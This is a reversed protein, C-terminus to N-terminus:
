KFTKSCLNSWSLKKASNYMKIISLKQNFIIKISISLATTTMHYNVVVIYRPLRHKDGSFYLTQIGSM